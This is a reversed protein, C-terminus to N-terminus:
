TTTQTASLYSHELLCEVTTGYTINFVWSGKGGGTEQYRATGDILRNSDLINCWGPRISGLTHLVDNIATEPLRM